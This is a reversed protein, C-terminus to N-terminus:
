QVFGIARGRPTTSRANTYLTWGEFTLRLAACAEGQMEGAIIGRDLLHEAVFVFGEADAAGILACDAYGDFQAHSAGLKTNAGLWEVLNWEQQDLSPLRVVELLRRVVADTIMEPLTRRMSMQRVAYSLKARADADAALLDPLEAVVTAALPINKGCRRCSYRISDGTSLGPRQISLRCIPCIAEHTM